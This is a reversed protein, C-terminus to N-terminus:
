WDMNLYSKLFSTHVETYLMDMLRIELRLDAREMNAFDNDKGYFDKLIREVTDFSRNVGDLLRAELVLRHGLPITRNEHEENIEFGQLAKDMLESAIDYRNEEVSHDEWKVKAVLGELVKIRVETENWRRPFDKYIKSAVTDPLQEFPKSKLAALMENEPLESIEVVNAM